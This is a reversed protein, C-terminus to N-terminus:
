QMAIATDLGIFNNVTCNIAVTLLGNQDLSPQPIATPVTVIVFFAKTLGPVTTMLCIQKGLIATWEAETEDTLNVTIALSDTMGSRGAVYKAVYDELSSADISEPTIEVGGMSNIRTLQSYESATTVKTGDTSLAQYVKVGLTSLGAAAM